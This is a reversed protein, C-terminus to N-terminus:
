PREGVVGAILRREELAMKEVVPRVANATASGRKESWRRLRAKLVQLDRLDGMLTQQAHMRTDKRFNSHFVAEACELAYRFNKFAIRMAHLSDANEPDLLKTASIFRRHHMRLHRRVAVPFAAAVLGSELRQCSARTHRVGAQLKRKMENNTKKLVRRIQQQEKKRLYANFFIMEPTSEIGRVATLEVQLDRLPGLRKLLKRLRKQLRLIPSSRQLVLILDLLATLRRVSVRLDHVSDEACGGRVDTWASLFKKWYTDLATTFPRASQLPTPHSMPENISQCELGANPAGGKM